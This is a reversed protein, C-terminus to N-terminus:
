EGGYEVRRTVGVVTLPLPDVQRLLLRGGANWSGSIPVEVLTTDATTAGYSDAVERQEWETLHGADEGVWLGRSAVVEVLARTVTRNRGKENPVDLLEADCDHRLGAWLVAPADELQATFDAVGGSVTVADLVNGDAVGVVSLGNLHTLGTVQTAGAASRAGDLWCATARRSDLRELTRVGGRVASVYLREEGGEPLVALSEVGAGLNHRAWGLAGLKPLFTCSLLAGDARVVWLTHWPSGQWAMDRVAFTELLHAAVLSVDSGGYGGGEQSYALAEVGGDQQRVYLLAGPTRAPPVHSAGPAGEVPMAENVETRSLAAGGPGALTHVGSSTLALLDRRSVLHRVEEWQGTALVLTVADDSNGPYTVDFATFDNVRSAWVTSPREATAAYVARQNHQSVVGPAELRLLAGTEDYVAFPNLGQPPQLSFDPEEGSDLLFEALRADGVWGFIGGRGRYVRDAVYSPDDSVLGGSNLRVKVPKAPTCVIGEAVSVATGSPPDTSVPSGEVAWWAADSTAHNLNNAQISNYFVGGSEVKGWLGYTIHAQWPAWNPLLITSLLTPATERVVGTDRDRTVRTVAWQWQRAPNDADPAGPVGELRPFTAGGPFADVDFTTTTLSWATDDVASTLRLERPALGPASIHLVAGVQSWKLYPLHTADWPTGALAHVLADGRWVQVSGPLFVLLYARTDSYVFPVLRPASALTGVWTFGPRAQLAGQALPLFNLCARLGAAYEAMDSRGWLRSDLEGASFRTQRHPTSAM